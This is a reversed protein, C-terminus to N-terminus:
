DIDPQKVALSDEINDLFAILNQCSTVLDVNGSGSIVERAKVRIAESLKAKYSLLEGCNRVIYTNMAIYITKNPFSNRIAISFSSLTAVQKEEDHPYPYRFIIREILEQHDDYLDFAEPVIGNTEDHDM